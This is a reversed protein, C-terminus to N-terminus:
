RSKLEITTISYPPATYSIGDSLNTVTVPVPKAYNGATVLYAKSSSVAFKNLDINFPSSADTKNIVVLTMRKSNTSDLAAYVSNASPTEGKVSLELNGFKSGARDYNIFSQFGALEAAETAAIGWNAAAYVGYRGFVGLVDAQAIAGSISNGGGYNYESFSLKTGPYNASILDSTQPILDIPNGFLSQTIWSDEVYNSDWLSRPAQIRALALGDSDGESVIRIGDGTAEPYWHLDLSDLLRKGATKGAAAMSQLYFTLFDRGGADTAGQLSRFGEWGYSVPGLLTAGPYVKKIQTAYNTTRTVLEAYTVQDPHVEPHTDKWLDPENDLCFMIPYKPTAFQKIYNVFEDEYVYYDTTVPPYVYQGGPKVPLNQRLRVQIYNPTSRIDGGGLKDAAVYDVMPVTLLPVAGGQTAAQIFTLGAWGAQDTAGMLGDNQYYWDSGANSANNEWNYATLRNGGQRALTFGTGMHALDTSNVGYIYPSIPTPSTTNVTITTLPNAAPTVSLTIDDVYYTPQITTGPDTIMIGDFDGRMDVALAQLPLTVEQWANKVLPGISSYGQPAGSATGYVRLKQGGTSGGDIWFTITKYQSGDQPLHTLYFTKSLLTESVSICDKGAHHLSKYALDVTASSANSWGNQLSDVFVPQNVAPKPMSVLSIDDVYWTGKVSGSVDQIWFGSFNDVSAAGIGVMPVVVKQWTNPKLAPLPYPVSAGGDLVAQVQLVQGGTGSEYVYFVVAEYGATSQDANDLYVAQNAATETVAISHKGSHVQATSALNTSAWSWNQWGKDLQDSYISQDGLAIASILTAFACVVWKM